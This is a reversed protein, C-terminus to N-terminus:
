KVNGTSILDVKVSVNITSTALAKGWEDEVKKYEAYHHARAYLGLGIPDIKKAQIIKILDEFQKTLKEEVMKKFNKENKSMNYPFMREGLYIPMNIKIDFHFKNQHYASKIKTKINSASFSIDDQHFLENKNNIPLSFHTFSVEGREEKQLILLLATESINFSHVHKGKHNLLSTGTLRLQTGDKIESISPTIGKEYIQRHLEHLTTQVTSNRRNNTDILTKLHLPLLVNDESQYYMISSLPGDVAIVRSNLSFKPNRYITDFLSFWDPHELVKKGILIVQIKSGNVFGKVKTDFKNRADRISTAKVEITESSKKSTKSFVPNTEYFILNNDKSLDIGLMLQMTMDELPLQEACGSLMTILFLYVLFIHSLRKM